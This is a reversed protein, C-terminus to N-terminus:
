NKNSTNKRNAFVFWGLLVLPLEFGFLGCSKEDKNEKGAKPDDSGQKTIEKGAKTTGDSKITAVFFAGKPDMKDAYVFWKVQKGALVGNTSKLDSEFDAIIQYSEIENKEKHSPSFLWRFVMGSDSKSWSATVDSFGKSKSLLNFDTIALEITANQISSDGQSKYFMAKTVKLGASNFYENALENTFPLNGILNNSKKVDAAKASYTLSITGTGDNNFKSAQYYKTAGGFFLIFIGGLALLYFKNFTYKEM